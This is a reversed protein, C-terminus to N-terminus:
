EIRPTTSPSKWRLAPKEIFRWSALALVLTLSIATFIYIIPHPSYKNKNFFYLTFQQIPYSYIYVGYSFDGWSKPALQIKKVHFAIIATTSTICLTAFLQVAGIDTSYLWLAGSLLISGILLNRSQISRITFQTSAAGLCFPLLLKSLNYINKHNGLETSDAVILRFAIAAVLLYLTAAKHNRTFWIASSFLIYCLIEFPLTWLSGNITSINNHEFVGPLYADLKIASINELFLWTEKREFYDSISLTTSAPGLIFTLFIICAALGPYIRLARNKAFSLANISREASITILHGSTFFFIYVGISGLQINHISPDQLNFGIPWCHSIFVLLAGVIRLSDFNNSKQDM